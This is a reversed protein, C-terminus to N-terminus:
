KIEKTIKKIILEFAENICNYENKCEKSLNIQLFKSNIYIRANMFIKKNKFYLDDIKIDIKYDTKKAWPYIFVNPDCLSNSLKQAIIESPKKALYKHTPILTNKKLEMIELDNMYYPLSVEIGIFANSKKICKANTPVFIYEKNACGSFILFLVILWKM